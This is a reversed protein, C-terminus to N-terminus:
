FPVGRKDLYLCDEDSEIYSDDELSFTRNVDNSKFIDAYTEHTALLPFICNLRKLLTTYPYGVYLLGQYEFLKKSFSRLRKEKASSMDLHKKVFTSWTM